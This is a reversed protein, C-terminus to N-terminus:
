PGVIAEAAVDDVGLAEAARPKHVVARVSVVPEFGYVARAVEHALTELLVYSRGSVVDRVVGAAARYDLTHDLDDSDVDVVVHLDVVFEQPGDREGPNAGHRGEATIGSLTITSRVTM